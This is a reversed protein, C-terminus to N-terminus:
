FVSLSPDRCHRLVEATLLISADALDDVSLIGSMEGERDLVVLRRVAREEMRLAADELDDDERCAIVQSTMAERVTARRPDAGAAAGRVAIDRDTIMGALVGCDLVPLAGVELEKMKRAAAELTEDAGITAAHRTMLERVLM